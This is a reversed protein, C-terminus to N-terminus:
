LLKDAHEEKWVVTKKSWYPPTNTSGILYGNRINSMGHLGTWTVPTGLFEWLREAEDGFGVERYLEGHTQALDRSEDCDFSCPIHSIFRWGKYAWIINLLPDPEELRITERDPAEVANDSACAIEYIPVAHEDDVREEFADICCEPYGLLEGLRHADEAKFADVADEVVDTDTGVLARNHVTATELGHEAIQNVYSENRLQGRDVIALKRPSKKSGVAAIEVLPYGNQCARLDEKWHERSAKTKWNHRTFRSIELDGDYDIPYHPEVTM